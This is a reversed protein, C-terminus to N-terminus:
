GSFVSAFGAKVHFALNIKAAHSQATRLSLRLAQLKAAGFQKSLLSLEEAKDFNTLRSTDYPLMALDYLLLDLFRLCLPLDDKLGDVVSFLGSLDGSVGMKFLGLTRDRLELRGSRAYHFARGLSGEALRACLLSRTRDPEVDSLFEAIFGDSLRQYRVSGCRSRITPMVKREFEALLFFQTTAPPEELTKLFANAAAATLRDVGDVIVYRRSALMPSDYAKSTIERVVDVGIEKGPEPEILLFDAHVRHDVQLCAPSNSDGKSFDEKIAQIASFRKGVGESGLLLLPVQLTGAVVNRLHKVAEPQERVLSLM